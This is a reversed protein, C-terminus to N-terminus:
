RNRRKAEKRKELISDWKEATVRDWRSPRRVKGFFQRSMSQSKSWNRRGFPEGMYLYVYGEEAVFFSSEKNDQYWSYGFVGTVVLIVALALKKM